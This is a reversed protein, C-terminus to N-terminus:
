DFYYFAKLLPPRKQKFNNSFQGHLNLPWPSPKNHALINHEDNVALCAIEASEKGSHNTHSHFASLSHRDLIKGRYNLKKPNAQTSRQRRM